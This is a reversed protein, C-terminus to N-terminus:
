QSAPPAPPATPTTSASASMTYAELTVTMMVVTPRTRASTTSDESEEPVVYNVALNDIRLQRTLRRLRQLFDVCDQWSGEVTVPIVASQYAAAADDDEIEPDGAYLGDQPRVSVFDPGSENVADQLEILLAPLEPAEPLMNALRLLETETEATRAKVAQRRELLLQASQIDQDAQDIQADLDGLRGFQPVVLVVAAIVVILVAVVGAAILKQQSTLKM